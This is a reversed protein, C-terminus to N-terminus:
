LNLTTEYSSIWVFHICLRWKLHIWRLLAPKATHALKRNLIFEFFCHWGMGVAIVTFLQCIPCATKKEETNRWFCGTLEPKNMHHCLCLKSRSTFVGKLASAQSWCNNERPTFELLLAGSLCELGNKICQVYFALVLYKWCWGRKEEPSSIGPVQLILDKLAEGDAALWPNRERFARGKWQTPTVDNQHCSFKLIQILNFSHM